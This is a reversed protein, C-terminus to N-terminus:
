NLTNRNVVKWLDEGINEENRYFAKVQKLLGIIEKLVSINKDVIQENNSYGSDGTIYFTERIDGNKHHFIHNLWTQFSRSGNKSVISKLDDETDLILYICTTSSYFSYRWELFCFNDAKESLFIEQHIVQIFIKSNLVNLCNDTIGKLPKSDYEWKWGDLSPEDFSSYIVESVLNEKTGDLKNKNYEESKNILGSFERNIRNVKQDKIRKHNKTYSFFFDNEKVANIFFKKATQDWQGALFLFCFKTLLKRDRKNGEVLNVCYWVTKEVPESKKKELNRRFNNLRHNLKHLNDSESFGSLLASIKERDVKQSSYYRILKKLAVNNDAM